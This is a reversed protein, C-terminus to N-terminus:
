LKIAVLKLRFRHMFLSKKLASDHKEYKNTMLGKINNFNVHRLIRIQKAGFM